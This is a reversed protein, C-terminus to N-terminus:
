SEVDTPISQTALELVDHRCFQNFRVSNGYPVDRMVKRLRNFAIINWMIKKMMMNRPPRQECFEIPAEAVRYSGRLSRLVIETDFQGRDCVCSKVIDRVANLNIVKPGHTETGMYGFFLQLLANLGWSLLRRYPYQQSITPDSRKSGIFVDFEDRKKWAWELFHMDWQEIDIIHAYPTDAALLGARLANGYNPIPEHVSKSPPYKPLLDKLIQPTADVSGNDVIVFQWKGQGIVSDFYKALTNINEELIDDENYVPIVISIEISM